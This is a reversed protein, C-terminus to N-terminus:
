LLGTQKEAATVLNDLLYAVNVPGVGGPTPTYVSAIDAIANMDYDGITGEERDKTIGVGILIAGPKITDKSIVNKRGVSSIIISAHKIIEDPNTTKSDVIVPNVDLTHLYEIIPKGATDGKGVAVIPTAKLWDFFDNHSHKEEAYIEQLIRVVAAAVPIVFTTDPHFGDIDKAPNTTTTTKDKDIHDPLPRQVIIGHVSRNENLDHITKLIQETSTEIPYHIETVSAGIFKAWKKKQAIYAVSAPNDGVLMVAMHPTVNNKQLTIVRQHLDEYINLALAKGDFKM